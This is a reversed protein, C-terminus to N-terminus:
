AVSRDSVLIQELEAFSRAPGEPAVPIGLQRGLQTASFIGRLLYRGSAEDAEVVLLHQRGADSLARVVDRVHAHEVDRMDLPAAAAISTMVHQVQVWVHVIRERQTVNIPREGMLDAATVLGLVRDDQDTVVLMRVRSHQMVQLAFDVPDDPAITVVEVERLDTMVKIAPDDLTVREMPPAPIQYIPTDPSLTVRRLVPISPISEKMVLRRTQHEGQDFHLLALALAYATDPVNKKTRRVGVIDDHRDHM